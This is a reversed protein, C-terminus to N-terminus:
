DPIGRHIKTYIFEDHLKKHDLKTNEIIEGTDTDLKEYYLAKMLWGKNFLRFIAGKLALANAIKFCFQKNSNEPLQAYGKIREIIM